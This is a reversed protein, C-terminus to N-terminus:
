PGQAAELYNSVAWGNKDENLPAVLQWWVYGDGEQPGGTVLFIEGELGLYAIQGNLSPEKRLRLGDGETGSIQVHGNVQIGSVPELTPTSAPETPRPTRTFTPIPIVTIAGYGTYESQDGPIYSGAAYFSVMLLVGATIVSGAIVWPNLIDKM